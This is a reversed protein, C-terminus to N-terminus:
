DRDDVIAMVEEPVTKSMVLMRLGRGTVVPSKPDSTFYAEVMDLFEDMEAENKIAFPEDSKTLIIKPYKVKGRASLIALDSWNSKAGDSMAFVAGKFAAGDRERMVNTRHDIEAKKIGQAEELSMSPPEPAPHAADWEEQTFYGKPKKEWVELNGDPSIFNGM